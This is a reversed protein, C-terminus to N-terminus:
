IIHKDINKKEYEPYVIMCQKVKRQFFVIGVNQHINANQTDSLLFSLNWWGTWRVTQKYSKFKFSLTFSIMNCFIYRQPLLHWM